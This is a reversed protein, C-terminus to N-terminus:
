RRSSLLYNGGSTAVVNLETGLLERVHPLDSGYILLYIRKEGAWLSRLTPDDIFVNAANPANSGYELNNSRGNWLLATRNTYFFVSSFAYYADGEILLGPESHKLADALNKSSLYPDFTVLALRAAQLFTLMMLALVAVTVSTRHSRILGVVGILLALAAIALPVRLYAFSRLTLDGMHGMSLTYLDPNQTLATSIDGPTPLKATWVLLFLV